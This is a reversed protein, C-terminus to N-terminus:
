VSRSLQSFESECDPTSFNFHDKQSHGQDIIDDDDLDDEEEFGQAGPVMMRQQQMLHNQQVQQQHMRQQPVMMQQPMMMHQPMLMQQQPIMMPHQQSMMHQPVMMPHPSMPGMMMQNMMPMAGGMGMPMTGGMGIAGPMAGGMSGNAVRARKVRRSSAAVSMASLHCTCDKIAQHVFSVTAGVM